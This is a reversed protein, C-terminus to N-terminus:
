LRAQVPTPFAHQYQPWFCCSCYPSLRGWQPARGGRRRQMVEVPASPAAAAAAPCWCRREELALVFTVLESILQAGMDSRECSNLIVPHKPPPAATYTTVCPLAPQALGALPRVFSITRPSCPPLPLCDEKKIMTCEFHLLLVGVHEDYSKSSAAIKSLTLRQQM